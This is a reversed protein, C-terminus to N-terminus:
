IQFRKVMTDLQRALEALSEASMNVQSSSNSMEDAAQTVEEIEKAIQESVNSSQSVNKNVQDIGESAKIVNGAIENTTASQEEVATAISSVLENVEHVVKSVSSIQSITDETSNQIVAVRQKIELTSEATQHALDKIENAVVAFGKGAEGARAAEITANLALLNVQESIETITEVVKGIENAAEGLKEVQQSAANSQAVTEKTTMRAREANRSIENITTNMEETATAVININLAAQSMTSAVLHMNASMEDSASAVASAKDSTQESGKSMLQAIGSLESSSQNINTVNGAINGVMSQLNDIFRNFWRGLESIEDRSRIVLRKTLDGEGEAIDRIMSVTTKIPTIVARIILVSLILLVALGGAAVSSNVVNGTQESSKIAQQVKDEINAANQLAQTGIANLRTLITNNRNWHAMLQTELDNIRPIRDQIGQWRKQQDALRSASIVASLNQIKPGLERDLGAKTNMYKEVDNYLRTNHINLLRERWFPKFDKFLVRMEAKLPDPPDGQMALEALEFDIQAVAADIDKSVMEINALIDQNIKLLAQTAATMEVFTESVTKMNAKITEALNRIQADQSLTLIEALLDNIRQYLSEHQEVLDDAPQRIFKEENLMCQLTARVIEGSKDGISRQVRANRDLQFSTAAIVAMGLVGLGALAIIRFRISHLNFIRM